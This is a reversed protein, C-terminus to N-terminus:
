LPLDADRCHMVTQKTVSFFSSLFFSVTLVRLLDGCGCHQFPLPVPVMRAPLTPLVMRWWPNDDFSPSPLSYPIRQWLLWMVFDTSVFCILFTKQCECRTVLELVIKGALVSASWLYKPSHWFWFFIKYWQINGLGPSTKILLYTDCNEVKAGSKM